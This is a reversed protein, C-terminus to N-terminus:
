ACSYTFMISISKPNSGGGISQWIAEGHVTGTSALIRTQILTLSNAENAMSGAIDYSNSFSSSPNFPLTFVWDLINTSVDTTGTLSGGVTVINGIRQYFFPGLAAQGTGGNAGASVTPNYTGSILQLFTLNGSIDSALTSQISAPLSVPLTLGYNAAQSVSAAITVNKGSAVQQGIIISGGSITAPTNTASQFTFTSGSFSASATGSPLGTITGASGAVAGGQTMRVINGAGDNYYLDVGSEYLCGLNPSSGALTSPQISFRLTKITTINNGNMPFDTNINIGAPTIQVGQGPSHNHSDIISLCSVINTAWDPGPDTGVAPVPMNMEPSIVTNAM